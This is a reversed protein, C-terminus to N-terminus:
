ALRAVCRLADIDILVRGQPRTEIVFDGDDFDIAPNAEAAM